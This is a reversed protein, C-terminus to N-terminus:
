RWKGVDKEGVEEVRKGHSKDEISKKRIRLFLPLFSTNTTM